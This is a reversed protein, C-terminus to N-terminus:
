RTGGESAVQAIVAAFDEAGHGAASARAYVDRIATTAPLPAHVDAGLHLILNLDKLLLDTTFLAPQFKREILQPLKYGLFPSALVSAGITDRIAERPVGAREGLVIAEAALEALGGVLLNMVLKLASGSGVAGARVVKKAMVRLVPEVADIVAPDGGALAVLEGTRAQNVSGLVPAEVFRLGHDECLAAEARADEPGVTSCDVVVAGRPVGHLVGDDGSLVRMVAGPDALMTIVVEADRAADAPSAALTAGRAALDEGRSRTRNWVALTHGAALLREAMPHGMRGLGLFAM